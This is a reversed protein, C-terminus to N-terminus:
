KVGGSKYKADILKGVQTAYPSPSNSHKYMRFSEAVFEPLNTRAYDSIFIKGKEKQYTKNIEDIRQQLQKTRSEILMDGNTKSIDGAKIKKNIRMATDSIEKKIARNKADKDKLLRSLNDKYTNQVKRFDKYLGKGGNIEALTLHHAWEHSVISRIGDTDSIGGPSWGRKVSAHIKKIVDDYDKLINPNLKIKGDGGWMLAGNIRETLSNLKKKYKDNIILKNLQAEIDELIRIDNIGRVDVNNIGLNKKMKKVITDKPSLIEKALGANAKIKKEFLRDIRVRQGRLTRPMSSFDEHVRSIDKASPKPSPRLGERDARAKTISGIGTRCQYHNPPRITNWIPDTKLAIFGNFPACIDSQRDDEIGLFELMVVYKSRQATDWHAQNYTSQINTRFVTEIHRDSLPTIGYNTFVEGMSKKFDALSLGQDITDKLHIKTALLANQTEIRQVSFAIAKIQASAEKFAAPPIIKKSNLFQLAEDYGITEWVEKSIYDKLQPEIQRSINETEEFTGLAYALMMSKEMLVAFSHNMKSLRVPSRFTKMEQIDQVWKLTQKSYIKERAIEISKLIIQEIKM